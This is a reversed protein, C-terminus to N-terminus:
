ISRKSITMLCQSAEPGGPFCTPVHTGLAQRWLPPKLHQSAWADASPLWPLSETRAMLWVRSLQQNLTQYKGDTGPLHSYRQHPLPGAKNENTFNNPSLGGGCGKQKLVINRPTGFYVARGLQHRECCHSKQHGSGGARWLRRARPLESIMGSRTPFSGQPNVAM